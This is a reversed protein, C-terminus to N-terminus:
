ILGILSAIQPLVTNCTNIFKIAQPVEAAIGKLIRIANKVRDKSVDGSLGKVSEGIVNVQELADAKSEPPLNSETDIASKLDLLLNAVKKIDTNTSQQLDKITSKVLADRGALTVNVGSSGSVSITPRRASSLTKWILVGIGSVAMLSGIIWQTFIQPAQEFSQNIDGSAILNVWALLAPIAIVLGFAILGLGIFYAM